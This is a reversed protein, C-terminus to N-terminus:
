LAVSPVPPRAAVRSRPSPSQPLGGMRPTGSCVPGRPECSKVRPLFFRRPHLASAGVSVLPRRWGWPHIATTVPHWGSVNKQVPPHTLDDCEAGKKSHKARQTHTLRPANFRGVGDGWFEVRAPELSVSSSAIALMTFPGVQSVTAFVVCWCSTRHEFM